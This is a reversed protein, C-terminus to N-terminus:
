EAQMIEEDYPYCVKGSAIDLYMVWYAYKDDYPILYVFGTTGFFPQIGHKIDTLIGFTLYTVDNINMTGIIREPLSSSESTRDHYSLFPYWAPVSMESYNVSIRKERIYGEDFERLDNQPLACDFGSIPKLDKLFSLDTSPLPRKKTILEPPTNTINMNKEKKIESSMIEVKETKKEDPPINEKSQPFIHNFVNEDSYIDVLSISEKDNNNLIDFTHNGSTIIDLIKQTGDKYSIILAYEKENDCLINIKKGDDSFSVSPSLNQKNNM